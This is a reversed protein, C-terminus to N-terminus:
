ADLEARASDTQQDATILPYVRYKTDATKNAYASVAVGRDPQGSKLSAKSLSQIV